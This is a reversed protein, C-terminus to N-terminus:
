IGPAKAENQVAALHPCSYPLLEWHAARYNWPGRAQASCTQQNFLVRWLLSPAEPCGGCVYVFVDRPKRKM